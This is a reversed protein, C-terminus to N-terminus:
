GKRVTFSSVVADLEQHRQSYCQASCRVLLLYLRSADDNVLATQDFTQVFPGVAYNFVVHVGRIGPSPTVVQDSILEFGSLGSGSKAAQERAADTVPLLFNRLLDFSVASRAPETLQQVKAYVVPALVLGGFVHSPSPAAADYAVSWTLAEILKAQQSGSEAGSTEASRLANGDIRHWSSPVKLYLRQQSNTVYTYEPSGCGAIGAPGALVAALVLAARAPARVRRRGTGRQTSGPILVVM